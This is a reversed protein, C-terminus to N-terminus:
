LFPVPSGLRIGDDLHIFQVSKRTALEAIMLLYREHRDKDSGVPSPHDTLVVQVGISKLYDIAQELSSWQIDKISLERELLYNIPVVVSDQILCSGNTGVCAEQYMAPKNTM